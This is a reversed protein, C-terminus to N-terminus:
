QNGGDAGVSPELQQLRAQAKAIGSEIAQASAGPPLARLARRWYAIAQQFQQHHFAHVGLLSLATENNEDLEVVQKLLALLDADIQHHNALFRAQAYRAM